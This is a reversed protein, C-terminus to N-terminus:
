RRFFFRLCIKRRNWLFLLIFNLLKNELISKNIANLIENKWKDSIKQKRFPKRTIKKLIFNNINEKKLDINTNELNSWDKYNIINILKM